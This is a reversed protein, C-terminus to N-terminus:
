PLFYRLLYNSKVQNFAKIAFTGSSIWSSFDNQQWELKTVPGRSGDPEDHGVYNSFFWSRNPGAYVRDTWMETTQTNLVNAVPWQRLRGQSLSKEKLIARQRRPDELSVYDATSRRM